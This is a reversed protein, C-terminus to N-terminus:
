TTCAGRVADVAGDSRTTAVAVGAAVGEAVPGTAVVLPGGAVAGWGTLAVTTCVKATGAGGSGTAGGVAAEAGAEAAIGAGAAPGAVVIVGVAAGSGAEAMEVVVVVVDALEVVDPDTVADGGSGPLPPEDTWVATILAEAPSGKPVGADGAVVAGAVLTVDPAAAGSGAAAPSVLRSGNTAGPATTVAAGAVTAVVWVTVAVATSGGAVAAVWDVPV